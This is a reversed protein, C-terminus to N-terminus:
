WDVCEQEKGNVEQHRQISTRHTQSPLDPRPCASPEQLQLEQPYYLSPLCYSEEESETSMSSEVTLSELIGAIFFTTCWCLPAM